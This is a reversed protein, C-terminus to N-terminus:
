PGIGWKHIDSESDLVQHFAVNRRSEPVDTEAMRTTPPLSHVDRIAASLLAMPLWRAFIFVMATQQEAALQCCVYGARAIGWLFERGLVGM